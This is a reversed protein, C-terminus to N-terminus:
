SDDSSKHPLAVERKQVTGGGAVRAGEALRNSLPCM